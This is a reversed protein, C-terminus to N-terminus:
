PWFEFGATPTVFCLMGVNADELPTLRESGMPSRIRFSEEIADSLGVVRSGPRCSSPAGFERLLPTPADPVDHYWM